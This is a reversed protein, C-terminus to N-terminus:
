REDPEESVDEAELMEGEFSEPPPPLRKPDMKLLRALFERPDDIAREGRDWLKYYRGITEKADKADYLEVRAVSGNAHYKLSKILRGLGRKKIEILDFKGRENLLDTIDGDGHASLGELVEQSTMIHRSRKALASERAERMVEDLHADYAHVRKVWEWRGSWRGILTRSKDLKQVVADISREPGLDRYEAFAAFAPSSEGPQQEWPVSESKTPM